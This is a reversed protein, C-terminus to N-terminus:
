DIWTEKHCKKAFLLLAIAIVVIMVPMVMGGPGFVAIADSIVFAHFMQAFVGILSLQFLKIAWVNKLFLAICGFTGAIVALGFAINAWLPTKLHMSQQEAPLNAIMEPTMMMQGVFAMVGMLNWVIAIVVVITFWPPLTKTPMNFGTNNIVNTTSFM